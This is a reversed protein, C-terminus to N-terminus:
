MVGQNGIKGADLVQQHLHVAGEGREKKEGKKKEKTVPRASPARKGGEERSVTKKKGEGRRTGDKTTKKKRRGLRLRERKKKKSQGKKKNSLPIGDGGKKGRASFPIEEKKERTRKVGKKKKRNGSKPASTNRHKRKKKKKRGRKFPASHLHKRGGKIGGRSPDCCGRGRKKREGRGVSFVLFGREEGGRKKKKEWNDKEGTKTFQFANGM